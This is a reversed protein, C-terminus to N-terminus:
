KSFSVASGIQTVTAAPVEGVVLIQYGKSVNAYFNTAGKATQGIKPRAGKVLPEIFLSVSALGDTFIVQTVPAEKGPVLRTVQEVKRYGAPLNGVSWGTSPEAPQAHGEELIYNKSHDVNPHFWDMDQSELMDVQSFTMQELMQNQENLMLSKLLLGYERDAWFKYAYRLRDRPDLYVVRGDRGAVREMAGIRAKYSAKIAQINAPLVAPFLNHARRKEMIVKENKPSFIVVDSGQSLMERPTGDLVVMRAYEGQGYNMHTIQVSKVNEGSQYVFVGKYSLDHAAEAAKQLVLWPDEPEAHVVAMPTALLCALLFRKM